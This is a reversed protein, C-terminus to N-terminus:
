EQSELLLWWLHEKFFTNQFIECFECFFVQAPTEKIFNCANLGAVKNFSLSQCM